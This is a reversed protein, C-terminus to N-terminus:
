AANEEISNAPLDVPGDETITVPDPFLTERPANAGHPLILALHLDGDIRVVDSALWDCDVAERPLTAGEPIGSFDFAEGNITLIDGRRSLTLSDDRRMPSFSINM